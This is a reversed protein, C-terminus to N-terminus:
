LNSYALYSRSRRDLKANKAIAAWLCQLHLDTLEMLIGFDGAIAIRGTRLLALKPQCDSLQSRIHPLLQM